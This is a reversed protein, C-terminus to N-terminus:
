RKAITIRTPWFALDGDMVLAGKDKLWANKTLRGIGNSEVIISAGTDQAEHILNWLKELGDGANWEQDSM